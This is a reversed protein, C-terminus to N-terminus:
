LGLMTLPVSRVQSTLRTVTEVEREVPSGPDPWGDTCDHTGEKTRGTPARADVDMEVWVHNGDRRRPVWITRDSSWGVDCLSEAGTVDISAGGAEAVVSVTMGRPATRVFALRAGNPSVALSWIEEEIVRSCKEANCRFIGAADNRGYPYWSTGDPSCAVGNYRGRHAVNLSRERADLIDLTGDNAIKALGRGCPAIFM